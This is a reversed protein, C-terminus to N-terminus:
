KRLQGAVSWVGQQGARGHTRTARQGPFPQHSVLNVSEKTCCGASGALQLEEWGSEVGVM